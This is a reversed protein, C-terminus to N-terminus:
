MTAGSNDTDAQYFVGVIAVGENQCHQLMARLLAKAALPSEAVQQQEKPTKGEPRGSNWTLTRTTGDAPEDLGPEAQLWGALAQEAPAATEEQGDSVDTPEHGEQEEEEETDTETIYQYVYGDDDIEEARGAVGGDDSSGARPLLGSSGLQSGSEVESGDAPAAAAAGTVPPLLQELFVKPPTQLGTIPDRGGHQAKAAKSEVKAIAAEFRGSGLNTAGLLGSEAGGARSRALLHSPPPRLQSNSVAGLIASDTRMAEGEGEFGVSNADRDYGMLVTDEGQLKSRLGQLAFDRQEKLSKLYEEAEASETSTLEVMAAAAPDFAPDYYYEDPENKPSDAM